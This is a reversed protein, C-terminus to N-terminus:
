VTLTDTFLCKDAFSAELVKLRTNACNKLRTSSCGSSLIRAGRGAEFLLKFEELFQELFDKWIAGGSYFSFHDCKQSKGGCSPFQAFMVGLRSLAGVPFPLCPYQSWVSIVIFCKRDYLLASPAALLSRMQVLFHCCFWNSGCYQRKPFHRLEQDWFKFNINQMMWPITTDPAFPKDSFHGFPNRQTIYYSVVFHFVSCWWTKFACFQLKTLIDLKNWM